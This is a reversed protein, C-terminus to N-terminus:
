PDMRPKAVRSLADVVHSHYREAKEVNVRALAERLPVPAFGHRDAACNFCGPREPVDVRHDHGHVFAWPAHRKVYNNARRTAWPVSKDTNLDETPPHHHFVVGSAIMHEAVHAFGNELYFEDPEHDHNGRILIKLGGNLRLLTTALEAQRQRLGASVDGVVVALDDPGVRENWLEVFRENMQAADAFPRDCHVIINEHYLHLDSLVWVEM